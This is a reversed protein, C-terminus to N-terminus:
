YVITKYIDNEATPEGINDFTLEDFQNLYESKNSNNLIQKLQITNVKNELNSNYNSMLILYM